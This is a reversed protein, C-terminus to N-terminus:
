ARDAFLDAGSSYKGIASGAIGTRAVTGMVLINIGKDKIFTPIRDDARGRLHHIEKAGLLKEKAILVGM